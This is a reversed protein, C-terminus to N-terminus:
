GIETETGCRRSASQPAPVAFWRASSFYKEKQNEKINRFAFHVPSEFRLRHSKQTSRKSFRQTIAFNLKQQPRSLKKKPIRKQEAIRKECTGFFHV